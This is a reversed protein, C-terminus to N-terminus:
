RLSEGCFRTAGETHIPEVKRLKTMARDKQRLTDADGEAGNGTEGSGTM